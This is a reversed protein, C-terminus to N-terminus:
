GQTRLFPCCLGPGVKTPEPLRSCLHLGLEWAPSGGLVGWRWGAGPGEM